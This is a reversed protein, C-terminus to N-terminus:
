DVVLEKPSSINGVLDKAWVYYTRNETIEFLNSEQWIDSNEDPINNSNTIAYHSVGSGSKGLTINIDNAEVSIDLKSIEETENLSKNLNTITPATNDLNGLKVYETAINGLGDEAYVRAVTQGYVDGVFTYERQYGGDVEDALQLDSKDNFGIRVKKVGNDKAYFTLDKSKSWPGIFIMDSIFTPAFNDVKFVTFKQTNVNGLSDIVKLTFEKGNEDAEIQPLFTYSYNKNNVIARANDVYVNGECDEVRITVSGCYNETGTITIEKSTSWDDVMTIDRQSINLITPPTKEAIVYIHNHITISTGDQTTANLNMSLTTSNEYNPIVKANRIHYTVTNEHIEYWSLNTDISGTNNPYFGGVSTSIWSCKEMNWPFIVSFDCSMITGDDGSYLLNATSTTTLAKGCKQCFASGSNYHQNSDIVNLFNWCEHNTANIWVNCKSCTGSIGNACGLIQGYSNTHMESYTGEVDTCVSCYKVMHHSNNAYAVDSYGKHTRINNTQYSYGCNCVHNLKNDPSCSDGMTWSESYSHSMIEIKLNCIICEKWHNVEDYKTEYVHNHGVEDGMALYTIDVTRKTYNQTVIRSISSKVLSLISKNKKILTNARVINLNLLIFCVLLLMSIKKKM